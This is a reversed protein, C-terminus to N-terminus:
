TTEIVLNGDTEPDIEVVRAIGMTMGTDIGRDIETIVRTGIGIGSRHRAFILDPM